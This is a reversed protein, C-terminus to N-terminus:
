RLWLTPGTRRQARDLVDIGHEALRELGSAADVAHQGVGDDQDGGVVPVAVNERVAARATM